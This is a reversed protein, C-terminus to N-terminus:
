AKIDLATAYLLWAVKVPRWNFSPGSIWNTAAFWRRGKADSGVSALSSGGEFWELRYLGHPLSQVEKKTM